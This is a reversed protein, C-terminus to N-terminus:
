ELRGSKEANRRKLALVPYEEGRNDKNTDCIFKEPNRVPIPYIVQRGPIVFDVLQEGSDILGSDYFGPFLIGDL